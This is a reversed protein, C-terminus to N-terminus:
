PGESPDIALDAPESPAPGPESGGGSGGASWPEPPLDMRYVIYSRNEYLVRFEQKRPWRYTILYPAGYKEGLYRLRRSDLRSLSNNWGAGVLPDDHRHIDLVCNWWAVISEADQPVDKWSVVESRRAYWKFTQGMLPTLFRADEPVEGSGAIWLCADVWGWYDWIRDARPITPKFRMSGTVLLHAVPAVVLLALGASTVAAMRIRRVAQLPAVRREAVVVIGLVVAAALGAAAEWAMPYQAMRAVAVITWGLLCVAALVAAAWIAMTWGRKGVAALRVEAALRQLVKPGALAVGMPVAVDSLRFWYFRLLGAALSPNGRVGVAIAVGAVTLVLSGAVFAQVRDNARNRPGYRWGAAWVIALLSFRLMFGPPFGGPDLHHRLRMYVYVQNALEVVAPDTGWTLAVSPILGPLSLVLGLLLSPLMSAISPRDEDSVLWAIGAAVVAWGGVLVHFAAAAGLLPWVRGYRGLALAELGLFTLVYAFGKAEVGGVVWEGAMHGHEVLCVFLAATWVSAWRWPLVARSLRQWSWALLGWTILRAAWAFLTPPLLLALWGLSLYFTTHTDASDLFADGPIWQPNWFHIAKGIYYPENVEPVPWAGDVFFVLFVLATEAAILLRARRLLASTPAASEIM